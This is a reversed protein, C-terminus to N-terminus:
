HLISGVGVGVSQWDVCVCVCVCVCVRVSMYMMWLVPSSYTTIKKTVCLCVFVCVFVSDCGACVDMEVERGVVYCKWMKKEVGGGGM